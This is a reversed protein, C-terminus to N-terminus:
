EAVHTDTPECILKVGRIERVTVVTGVPIKTNDDTSRASWVLGAIRVSGTERINDVEEQVVGNKGVLGDANLASESQKQLLKKKFFGRAFVLLLVSIALFVILQIWFNDVFGSLIMSVIAAPSFWCSVLETTMTEVVLSLIAVAGWLLFAGHEVLFDKM